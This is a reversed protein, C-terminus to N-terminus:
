RAGPAGLAVVIEVGPKWTLPEVTAGKILKQLTKAEDEFGAAFYIVTANRDAKPTGRSVECNAESLRKEVEQAKADLRSTSLLQVRTKPVDLFYVEATQTTMGRMTQAPATWVVFAARWGTPDWFVETSRQPIFMGPGDEFDASAEGGPKKVSLTVKCGEGCSWETQASDGVMVEASEGRPGTFGSTAVLPNARRWADLANKDPSNVYRSKVYGENKARV